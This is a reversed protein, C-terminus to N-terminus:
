ISVALITTKTVLRKRDPSKIYDGSFPACIPCREQAAVLQAAIIMAANPTDAAVHAVAFGQATVGQKLLDHTSFEVRVSYTDTM